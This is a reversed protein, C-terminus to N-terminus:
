IIKYKLPYNRLLRLNFNLFINVSVLLCLIIQSFKSVPGGCIISSMMMEEVLGMFFKKYNNYTSFLTVERQTILKLWMKMNPISVFSDKYDNKYRKSTNEEAAVLIIKYRKLIESTASDNPM